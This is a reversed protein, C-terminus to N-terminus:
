RNPHIFWQWHSMEQVLAPNQEDVTTKPFKVSRDVVWGDSSVLQRRKNGEELLAEVDDMSHVPRESLGEVRTDVYDKRLFVSFFCCYPHSVPTKSNLRNQDDWVTFGRRLFPNCVAYEGKGKSCVIAKSEACTCKEIIYRGECCVESLSESWVSGILSKM